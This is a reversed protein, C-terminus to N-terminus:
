NLPRLIYFNMLALRWYYVNFCIKSINPAITYSAIWLQLVVASIRVDTKKGPANIHNMPSNNAENSSWGLNSSDCHLSVGKWHLSLSNWYIEYIRNKFMTFCQTASCQMAPINRLLTSLNLSSLSCSILLLAASLDFVVGNSPTFGASASDDEEVSGHQHGRKNNTRNKM